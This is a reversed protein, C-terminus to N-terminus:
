DAANALRKRVRLLIDGGEADREDADLPQGGLADAWRDLDKRDYLVRRGNRKPIPGTERLTSAGIGLYAAALEVNMLRPWDPLFAREMDAQTIRAPATM